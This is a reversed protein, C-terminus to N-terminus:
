KSQDTGCTRRRAGQNDDSLTARAQIRPDQSSEQFKLEPVIINMYNSDTDSWTTVIETSSNFMYENM